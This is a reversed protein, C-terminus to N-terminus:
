ATKHTRRYYSIGAVAAGVLAIKWWGIVAVLVAGVAVGGSIKELSTYQSLWAEAQSLLAKAKEKLGLIDWM